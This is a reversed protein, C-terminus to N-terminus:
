RNEGPPGARRQPDRLQTQVAGFIDIERSTDLCHRDPASHWRVPGRPTVSPPLPLTGAAVQVSPPWLLPVGYPEGAVFM